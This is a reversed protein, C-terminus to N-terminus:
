LVMVALIGHSALSSHDHWIWITRSQEFKLLVKLDEATINAYQQISYGADLQLNSLVDESSMEAIESDSRLQM